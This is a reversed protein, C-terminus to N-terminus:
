MFWRYAGAMAFCVSMAASFRRDGQTSSKLGRSLYVFYGSIGLMAGTGIMRCELCDEHPADASRAMVASRGISPGAALATNLLV